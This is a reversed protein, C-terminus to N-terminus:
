KFFLFKLNQKILNLLINIFLGGNIHAILFGNLFNKTEFLFSKKLIILFRIILKM